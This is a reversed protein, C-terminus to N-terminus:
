GTSLANMKLVKTYPISFRRATAEAFHVAVVTASIALSRMALMSAILTTTNFLQV